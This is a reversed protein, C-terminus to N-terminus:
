KRKQFKVENIEKDFQIKIKSFNTRIKKYM